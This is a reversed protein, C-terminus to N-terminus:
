RKDIWSIFKEINRPYVDSDQSIEHFKRNLARTVEYLIPKRIGAKEIISDENFIDAMPMDAIIEGDNFIVAREAFEYAFDVDHTSVVLTIGKQSLKDLTNYLLKVNKPDLSATPEDLLIVRSDMALIDAITIRKKEGGSLYQPARQRYETLNMLELANEVRRKVQNKDLKLNMPGFSVESEVTSAIIQNEADQFVIGVNKRLNTLDSKKYLVEKGEYELHGSEPRLIGNCVLFFTSKGAGNNGLIAIKEGRHIDISINNLAKKHQFYSFNINQLKLITSDMLIFRDGKQKFINYM